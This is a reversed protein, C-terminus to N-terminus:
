AKVVKKGTRITYDQNTWAWPGLVTRNVGKYIAFKESPNEGRLALNTIYFLENTGDEYEVLLDIPMAFNSLNKLKVEQNSVSNIAYNITRTTHIFLNNYWKLNLGSVNEAVRKFDNPYPHRFKWKEY